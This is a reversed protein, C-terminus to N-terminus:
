FNITLDITGESNDDDYDDTDYSADFQYRMTNIGDNMDRVPFTVWGDTTSNALLDGDVEQDGMSAAVQQGGIIATGQSPYTSIDRSPKIAMHVRIFGTIDMKKGEDDEFSTKDKLTDLEVKDIKVNTGAWPTENLNVSKVQQKSLPYDEDDLTFVKDKSSDTDAKAVNGKDSEKTVGSKKTTKETKPSSDSSDSGSDSSCAAVTTLLVGAIVLSSVIKKSM